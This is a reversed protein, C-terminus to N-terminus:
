GIAQTVLAFQQVGEAPTPASGRAMQAVRDVPKLGVSELWPALGCDVPIDIRVFEGPIEALLQAILQQAQDVNKAVVPGICRGRGFARLLAFGQLKGDREIGIAQEVDPLLYELVVSRDLGSGANAL